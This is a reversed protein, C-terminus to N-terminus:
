KTLCVKGIYRKLSLSSAFAGVKEGSDLKPLNDNFCTALNTAETETMTTKPVAVVETTRKGVEVFCFALSQGNYKCADFAGVSKVAAEVRQDLSYLTGIVVAFTNGITPAAAKLKAVDREAKAKAVEYSKYEEEVKVRAALLSAVETKAKEAATVKAKLDANQQSQQYFFIGGIGIIAVAVVTAITAVIKASNSPLAVTEPPAFDKETFLSETEPARPPQNSNQTM